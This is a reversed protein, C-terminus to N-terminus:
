DDYTVKVGSGTNMNRKKEVNTAPMIYYAGKNMAPREYAAIRRYDFKKAHNNASQFYGDGSLLTVIGNKGFVLYGSFGDNIGSYEVWIKPSQRSEGNYYFTSIGCEDVRKIVTGEYEYTVELHTDCCSSCIIMVILGIWNKM